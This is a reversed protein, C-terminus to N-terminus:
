HMLYWDLFRELRHHFHLFPEPRLLGHGETPYTVYEYQKGLRQLAAILEKSQNPHVRDDQEGHAVFIPVQLHEIRHIPSGAEYEARRDRPHGMMRELDLRGILDGQAWSTLIDCDGYKSVACAFRHDPDDVVSHLAMYSGYSAGFIAVRESDIWDLTALHDYAALCDHTDAVGWVGHNAREYEMGYTTSGRFNPAFWAYGKDVFYQAVGDWEDGTVSTPGGHPQVVAPCPRDTSANSPRYLWGYVDRGDLSEYRVHEPVVHPASRVPVPVPTILERVDGDPSVVCLRAPTTFSEHAAVVSGDSLLQPSAWTGGEARVSVAGTTADIDVLDTVGHHSRVGVLSTGDPTFSLSAFDADAATLQHPRADSVADVVFVEYWGPWESAYALRTGDPSWAVSRLQFGPQHVVTSSGGNELDVVHLSTCNLDDHHFVTYAVRTRDPSVVATVYDAGADAIPRPWPRQLDVVTLVTHEGRGIGVILRADDLWVPGSGDCVTTPVGGAVPVVMVKGRSTYALRTGDPSWVANGDEWFAVLPRDVTVRAPLGGAVPMTWVDSSDRDLMFAVTRGDPSVEPQRPRETAAVWELRWHPAPKVDPRGPNPIGGSEDTGVWWQQTEAM